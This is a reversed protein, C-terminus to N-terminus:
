QRGNRTGTTIYRADESLGSLSAAARERELLELRDHLASTSAIELQETTM